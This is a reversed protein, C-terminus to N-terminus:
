HIGMGWDNLNPINYKQVNERIFKFKYNEEINQTQYIDPRVKLPFPFPECTWNFNSVSRDYEIPQLTKTGFEKNNIFDVIKWYYQKLAVAKKDIWAVHSIFIHPMQVWLQNSPVPLHESHMQLNRFTWKKTYSGIRDMWNIRWPGDVRVENKGTYQIWLSHFLTDPHKDLLEELQTKTLNGDIYEDTDLCVIKGSHNMAEDYLRQRINSEIQLEKDNRNTKLVSLINYKQKNEMLFEYTGDTSNDDMFVFGDAYKQWHPLMEKILFLENRTLTIQVIM